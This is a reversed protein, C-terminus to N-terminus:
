ENSLEQALRKRDVKGIGLLPLSKVFHIGKPKAFAGIKEELV